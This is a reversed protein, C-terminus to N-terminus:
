VGVGWRGDVVVIEDSVAIIDSLVERGVNVGEAGLGGFYLGAGRVDALVERAENIVEEVIADRREGKAPM